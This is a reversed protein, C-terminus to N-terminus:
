CGKSAQEQKELQEIHELFEEETMNIIKDLYEPTVLSDDVIFDDRKNEFTM